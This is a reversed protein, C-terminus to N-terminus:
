LLQIAGALDFHLDPRLAGPRLANAGGARADGGEEGRGGDAGLEGGALLLAFNGSTM